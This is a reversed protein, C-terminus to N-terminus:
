GLFLGRRTRSRCPRSWHRRAISGMTGLGGSTLWTRPLRFPYGASKLRHQGVDTTIIADPPLLDGSQPHHRLRNHTRNGTSNSRFASRLPPNRAAVRGSAPRSLSLFSSRMAPM